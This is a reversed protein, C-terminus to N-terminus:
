QNLRRLAKLMKAEAKHERQLCQLATLYITDEAPGHGPSSEMKRQLLSSVGRNAWPLSLNLTKHTIFNLTLGLMKQKFSSWSFDADQVGSSVEAVERTKM